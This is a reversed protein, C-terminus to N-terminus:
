YVYGTDAVVTVTRALGDGSITLALGTFRSKSSPDRDAAAASFPKGQADFYFYNSSGAYPAAPSLAYGLNAPRGECYWAPAGCYAKTASSGSNAGSPALVQDATGCGPNFCLAVSNGDLRVYVPRNQAVAVKQAFRLMARTQQTFADADFGTRDFFRAMGVAGLIGIVIMVAVLEVLTFGRQVRVHCTVVNPERFDCGAV